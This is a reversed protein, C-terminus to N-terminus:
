TGTGRHERRLDGSHSSALSHPAWDGSFERAVRLRVQACANLVHLVGDADATVYSVYFDGIADLFPYAVDRLFSANQARLPAVRQPGGGGGDAGNTDYM